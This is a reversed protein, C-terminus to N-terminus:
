ASSRGPSAIRSPAKPLVARLRSAASVARVFGPRESLLHTILFSSPPEDPRFHSTIRSFYTDLRAREFSEM